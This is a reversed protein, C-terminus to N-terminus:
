QTLLGHDLGKWVDIGPPARTPWADAPAHSPPQALSAAPPPSPLLPQLASCRPPPARTPWADAPAARALRRAAAVSSATTPGRQASRHRQARPVPHRSLTTPPQAALWQTHHATTGPPLLPRSPEQWLDPQPM